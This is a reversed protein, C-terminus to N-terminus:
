IDYDPTFIERMDLFGAFKKRKEGDVTFSVTKIEPVSALSNVIQYVLLKETERNKINEALESPLDATAEGGKVSVHVGNPLFTLIEESGRGEALKQLIQEAGGQASSKKIETQVPVLRYLRRDAYYVTVTDNASSQMAAFLCVAALLACIILRKM